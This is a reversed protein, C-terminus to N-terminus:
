RDIGCSNSTIRRQQTMARHLEDIALSYSTAGNELAGLIIEDRNLRVGERRLAADIERLKCEHHADLATLKQHIPNKDSM